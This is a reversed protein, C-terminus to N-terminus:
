LVNKPNHATSLLSTDDAFLKVDCKLNTTLDNIYILSFLPGLISGQPAGASITGWQSTKGTLVTRQICGALFSQILSLLQGSMDNQRLKYTLGDHWVTDFAKSIDLYVSRVDLPPNCAFAVSISHVISILQNITSDGPLFGSQSSNLMEHFSLHEYLSDFILKEM